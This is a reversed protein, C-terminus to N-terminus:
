SVAFRRDGFVHQDVALWDIAGVADLDSIRCSRVLEDPRDHAARRRM